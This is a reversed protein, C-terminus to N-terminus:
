DLLGTQSIYVANATEIPNDVYKPERHDCMDSDVNLAIEINEIHSIDDFGYECADVVVRLDKPYGQLKEILEQVTM